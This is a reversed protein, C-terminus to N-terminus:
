RSQIRRPASYGPRRWSLNAVSSASVPRFWRKSAIRCATSSGANRHHPTSPRSPTSGVQSRARSRTLSSRSMSSTAPRSGTRVRRPGAFSLHDIRPCAEDARMPRAARGDRSCASDGPVVSTLWTTPNDRHPFYSAGHDPCTALHRAVARACLPRSAMTRTETCSCFRASLRDAKAHFAALDRRRSRTLTERARTVTTGACRELSIHALNPSRNPSDVPVPRPRFRRAESAHQHEDRVCACGYCSHRTTTAAPFPNPM